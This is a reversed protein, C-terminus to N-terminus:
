SISKSLIRLIHDNRHLYIVTKLVPITMHTLFVSFFHLQMLSLEHTTSSLKLSMSILNVEYNRNQVHPCTYYRM